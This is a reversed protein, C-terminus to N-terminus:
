IKQNNKDFDRERKHNIYNIENLKLSISQLSENKEINKCSVCKCNKNCPFKNKYCKCYKRQCNNKTCKCFINNNINNKTQSKIYLIQKAKQIKEINKENNLCNTCKCNNCYIGKSFCECYNKLCKTRKCNCKINELINDKKKEIIQKL